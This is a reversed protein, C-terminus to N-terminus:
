MCRSCGVINGFYNTIYGSPYKCGCVPCVESCYGNVIRHRLAKHYISDRVERETNISSYMNRDTSYQKQFAEEATKRQLERFNDLMESVESMNKGNIWKIFTNNYLAIYGDKRSYEKNECMFNMSINQVSSSYGHQVMWMRQVESLWDFHLGEEGDKFINAYGSIRGFYVYKIVKDPIKIKHEITCLTNLRNTDGNKKLLEKMLKIAEVKAYDLDSIWTQVSSNTGGNNYM